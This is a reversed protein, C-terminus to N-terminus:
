VRYGASSVSNHRIDFHSLSATFAKSFVLFTLPTLLTHYEYFQTWPPKIVMSTRDALRIFPGHSVDWPISLPSMTQSMQFSYHFPFHTVHGVVELNSQGDPLTPHCYCHAFLFYGYGRAVGTNQSSEKPTSM